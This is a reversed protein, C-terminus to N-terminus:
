EYTLCIISCAILRSVAIFQDIYVAGCKLNDIKDYLRSAELSTIDIMNGMKEIGDIFEQKSIMNDCDADFRSFLLKAEHEQQEKNVSISRHQRSPSNPNLFPNRLNNATDM